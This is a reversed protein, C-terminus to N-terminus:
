IAEDLPPTHRDPTSESGRCSQQPWRTQRPRAASHATNAASSKTEAPVTRQDAPHTNMAIKKPNAKAIV